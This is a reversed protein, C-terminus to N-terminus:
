RFRNVEIVHTLKFNQSIRKIERNCFSLKIYVTTTNVLVKVKKERGVRM